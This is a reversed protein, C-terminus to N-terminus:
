FYYKLGVSPNIGLNFNVGSTNVKFGYYDDKYTMYVYSLSLLGVSLGFKPTPRFEFSGLSLSLGFGPMALGESFGAVFGFGLGPTYYLGDCIRAYYQINPIIELTHTGSEVGYGLSVGVKFKDAVFYGFEPAIAFKIASASEGDVILSTTAIGLNGGVYKEGKNQASLNFVACLAVICILFKKM